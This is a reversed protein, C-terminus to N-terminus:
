FTGPRIFSDHAVGIRKEKFHEVGKNLYRGLVQALKFADFVLSEDSDVNMLTIYEVVEYSHM